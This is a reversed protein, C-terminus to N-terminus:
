KQQQKIAGLALENNSRNTNQQKINRCGILSYLKMHLKLKTKITKSMQQATNFALKNM